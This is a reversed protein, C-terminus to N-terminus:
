ARAVSDSGVLWLSAGVSSAGMNGVLLLFLEPHPLMLFQKIVDKLGTVVPRRSAHAGVEYSLTSIIFFGVTEGIASMSLGLDGQSM